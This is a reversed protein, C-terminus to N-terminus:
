MGMSLDPQIMTTTTEVRRAVSRAEEILKQGAEGLLGNVRAENAYHDAADAATFTVLYLPLDDGTVAQYIRWGSDIEKEAYLAAFKRAVEEIEAEHGPRIYWWEHHRFLGTAEVERPEAPKYSLDPRSVILQGSGHGVLRTAADWVEMGGVANVAAMFEQNKQSFQGLDEMPIVYTYTGPGSLAFYNLKKGEDTEAMQATVKKVEAEYEQAHALPVHETWVYMFVPKAPAEEHSEARVAPALGALVVISLLLIGM